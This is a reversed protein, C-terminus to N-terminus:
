CADFLLRILARPAFMAVCSPQPSLQLVLLKWLGAYHALALLLNLAQLQSEVKLSMLVTM